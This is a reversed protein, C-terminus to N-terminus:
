VRIASKRRFENKKPPLVPVIPGLLTEVSQKLYNESPQYRTRDVPSNTGSNSSYEEIEKFDDEDLSMVTKTFHTPIILSPCSKRRCRNPRRTSHKNMIQVVQNRLDSYKHPDM